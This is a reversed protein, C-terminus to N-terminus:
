APEKRLVYGVARVTQILRPEGCAELKRRLHAVFVDVVNTRTAFDYGWVRELLQERTMVTGCNNALVTLLEYERRTLTVEVGSSLVRRSAFEIHLSGITIADQTVTSTGRPRRLLANLRATLEDFYFPKVLYDDAGAELGEIRDTVENRASLVCIPVDSGFARFAMIFGLGDLKPMQLDLVIVDPQEARSVAIAQVGDIATCVDFGSLTLGRELSERVNDDDDVVLVRHRESGLEGAVLSM